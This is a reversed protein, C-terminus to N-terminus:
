IIQFYSGFLQNSDQLKVNLLSLDKISGAMLVLDSPIQSEGAMTRIPKGRIEMFQKVEVQLQYLLM